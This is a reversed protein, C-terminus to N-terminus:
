CSLLRTNISREFIAMNPSLGIFSPGVLLQLWELLLIIKVLRLFVYLTALIYQVLSPNLICGLFNPDYFFVLTIRLENWIIWSELLLGCLYRGQTPLDSFLLILSFFNTLLLTFIRKKNSEEILRHSSAVMVWRALILAWILFVVYSIRQILVNVLPWKKFDSLLLVSSCTCSVTGRKKKLSVEVYRCVMRLVTILRTVLVLINIQTLVFSSTRSLRVFDLLYKWKFCFM